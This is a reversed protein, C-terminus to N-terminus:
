PRGQNTSIPQRTPGIVGAETLQELVDQPYALEDRLVDDNHEGLVPGPGNIRGPTRSLQAIL